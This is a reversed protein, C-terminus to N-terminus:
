WPQLYKLLNGNQLEGKTAKLNFGYNLFPPTAGRIVAGSLLVGDYRDKALIKDLAFPIEL